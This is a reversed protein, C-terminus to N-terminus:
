PSPLMRSLQRRSSVGVKAYVHYLHTDVTKPTVYLAEAIERNTMGTAAM